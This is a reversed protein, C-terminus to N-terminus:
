EAARATRLRGREASGTTGSLLDAFRARVSQPAAALADPLLEQAASSLERQAGGREWDAAIDADVHLVFGAFQVTNMDLAERLLGLERGTWQGVAITSREVAM